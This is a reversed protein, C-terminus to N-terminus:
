KETKVSLNGGESTITINGNLDTRYTKIRAANLKDLTEKHPHGYDNDKGVMIVVFRPAVARLFEPSTSSYSGHHGVKLVDSKLTYGKVLMEKESDSQADGTFLFSSNGYLLRIVISFNNLDEYHPSNPALITCVASNVNFSTGPIPNSITLGKNKIAQMVDEFTKTTTSVQPMYIQGISFKNIVADMGGIHDEHPHTGVIIDFKSIGRNKLTSVLSNATSNTGSDILMNSGNVQVLISDAQGVDLFTIQFDPSTSIGPNPSLFFQCSISLAVLLVLILAALYRV